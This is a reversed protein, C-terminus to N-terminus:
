VCPPARLGLANDCHGKLLEYDGADIRFIEEAPFDDHLDVISFLICIVPLEPEEYQLSDPRCVSAMMTDNMLCHGSDHSQDGEHHCCQGADDDENAEEDDAIHMITAIMDDGHYHPIAAHALIVINAILVVLASLRMRM